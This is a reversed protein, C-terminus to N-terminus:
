HLRGLQFDLASQETQFDYRAAAANIQASTKNLEAQSLEIISTSGIKFRAQALELADVANELLQQTLALREHAYDLDLAVIDVDRAVMDEQDRVAAEAAQARYEAERRRASNLGGTFIPLTLNVGAVAYDSALHSNGTPILGASGLASIVPYGLKGEAHAFERAADRQYRLRSLDPRRELAEFILASSNNTVYPAVPEDALVFARPRPEGLVASFNAFSAAVDHRAKALLIGAQSYDVRAFSVDLQSKLQNTALAQTQGFVLERDRFTEEAVQLVSQSQLAAFYAQDVALLIQARTAQVNMQESRATAQASRRLEHSRGFDTILQSITVGDAQREYILPNNLGGAAIRTNGPDATGVATASAFINPLAAAQVERVAQQSALATLAAVTIKPHQALALEQAQALTLPRPTTPEEAVCPLALALFIFLRKM